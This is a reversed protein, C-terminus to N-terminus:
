ENQDFAWQEGKRSISIRQEGVELTYREGGCWQPPSPNLTFEFTPEGGWRLRPGLLLLYGDDSDDEISKLTRGRDAVAAAFMQERYEVQFWPNGELKTE